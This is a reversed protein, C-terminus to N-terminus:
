RGGGSSLKTLFRYILVAVGPSGNVAEPVPQVLADVYYSANPSTADSTWLSVHESNITLRTNTVVTWPGIPPQDSAVGLKESMREADAYVKQMGRKAVQEADLVYLEKETWANTANRVVDTVREQCLVSSQRDSYNAILVRITNVQQANSTQVSQSVLDRRVIVMPTPGFRLYLYKPDQQWMDLVASSAEPEYGPTGRDGSITLTITGSPIQDTAKDLDKRRLRIVRDCVEFDGTVREPVGDSRTVMVQDLKKLDENLTTMVTLPENSELTGSVGLDVMRGASVSMSSSDSSDNDEAQEQDAYLAAPAARMRAPPGAARKNLMNQQMRRARDYKAMHRSVIKLVDSRQEYLLASTVVFRRVSTSQKVIKALSLMNGRPSLVLDYAIDLSFTTTHLEYLLMSARGQTDVWRRERDSIQDVPLSMSVLSSRQVRTMNRSGEEQVDVHDRDMRVFKGKIRVDRDTILTVEEDLTIDDKTLTVGLNILTSIPERVRFDGGDIRLTDANTQTPLEILRNTAGAIGPQPATSVDVRVSAKNVSPNFVVSLEM